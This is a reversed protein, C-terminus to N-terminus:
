LMSSGESAVEELYQRSITFAGGMPSVLIQSKFVQCLTRRLDWGAVVSLVRRGGSLDDVDKVM